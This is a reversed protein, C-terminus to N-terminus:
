ISVLGNFRCGKAAPKNLYAIVTMCNSLLFFYWFSIYSRIDGGPMFSNFPLSRTKVVTKIYVINEDVLFHLLM